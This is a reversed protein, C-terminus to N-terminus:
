LLILVSTLPATGSVFNILIWFTSVSVEVSAEKHRLPAPSLSFHSRVPSSPFPFLPLTKGYDGARKNSNECPYWAPAQASSLPAVAIKGKSGQLAVIACHHSCEGGVSTVRTWIEADVVYTPTSNTSPERGQESLLVALFTITPHFVFVHLM